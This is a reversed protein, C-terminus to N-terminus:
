ALVILCVSLQSVSMPYHNIIDSNNVSITQGADPGDQINVTSSSAGHVFEMIKQVSAALTFLDNREESNLDTVRAARRKTIVLV